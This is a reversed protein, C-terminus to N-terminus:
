LLLNLLGPLCQHLHSSASRIDMNNRPFRYKYQLGVDFTSFCQQVHSRVLAHAMRIAFSHVRVSVAICCRQRNASISLIKVEKM